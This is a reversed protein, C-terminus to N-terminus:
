IQYTTIYCKTKNHMSLINIKSLYKKLVHKDANKIQFM